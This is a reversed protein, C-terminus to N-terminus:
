IQEPSLQSLVKIPLRIIQDATMREIWGDSIMEDVVEKESPVVKGIKSSEEIVMKIKEGGYLIVLEHFYFKQGLKEINNIERFFNEEIKAETQSKNTEMFSFAKYTTSSKPLDAWDNVANALFQSKFNSFSIPPQM